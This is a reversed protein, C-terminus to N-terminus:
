QGDRYFGSPMAMQFDGGYLVAYYDHCTLPLIAADGGSGVTPWYCVLLKQVEQQAVSTGLATITQAPFFCDVRKNTPDYTVTTGSTIVPRVWNTANCEDNSAALLASLSTYNQLTPNSEIGAKKLLVLVLGDSAGPLGAYYAAKGFGNACVLDAM